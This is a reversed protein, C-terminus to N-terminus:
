AIDVMHYNDNLYDKAIEVRENARIAKLHRKKMKGVCHKEKREMM